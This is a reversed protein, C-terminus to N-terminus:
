APTTRANLHGAEDASISDQNNPTWAGEAAEAAVQSRETAYHVINIVSSGSTVDKHTTVLM